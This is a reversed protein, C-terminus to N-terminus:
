LAKKRPESGKRNSQPGSKIKKNNQIKNILEKTSKLNLDEFYNENIKLVPANVCAGLCEVKNISFKKDKSIEGIDIGVENKLLELIDDSGRLMCPSTTCVELHYEGVPSLNYMSYFTAIELVKIESVDIMKSIFDIAKTPLWGKNQGQALSLLPMISSEIYKKPYMKIINKAIDQNEKTFKFHKPQINIDAIKKFNCLSM